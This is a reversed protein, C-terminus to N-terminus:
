SKLVLEFSSGVQKIQRDHGLISFWHDGRKNGEVESKTMPKLQKLCKLIVERLRTHLSKGDM